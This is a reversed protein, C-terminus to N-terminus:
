HSAHATPVVAALPVFRDERRAGHLARVAGVHVAGEWARNTSLVALRAQWQPVGMTVAQSSSASALSSHGRRDVDLLLVTVVNPKDGNQVPTTSLLALAMAVHRFGVRM